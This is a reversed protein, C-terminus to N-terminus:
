LSHIRTLLFRIANDITSLRIQSFADLKPRALTVVELTSHVGFKVMLSHLHTRVTNASLQLREAIEKRGAGEVLLFLVDRERRTLSALLDDGDRRRDQDEILLRLVAGLERPPIWTDGRVVGRIVRLLHDVSEDKRVWAAAGARVAAVIREPQSAASVMVVRSQDGSRTLDSCFAIASDDPLDADLLIVDASRGVLVRPAFKASHAKAVVALDSETQLRTALADRFALRQDVILVHIAPRAAPASPAAM